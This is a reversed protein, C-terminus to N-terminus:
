EYSVIIMNYREGNGLIVEIFLSLLLSRTEILSWSKQQSQKKHEDFAKYNKRSTVTHSLQM